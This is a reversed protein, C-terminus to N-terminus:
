SMPQPRLTDCYDLAQPVTRPYFIFGAALPGLCACVVFLIGQLKRHREELAAYRQYIDDDESVPDGKIFKTFDDDTLDDDESV